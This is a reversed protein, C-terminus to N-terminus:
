ESPFKTQGFKEDAPAVVATASTVTPGRSRYLPRRIGANMSNGPWGTRVPAHAGLPAAGRGEERRGRTRVPQLPPVMRPAADVGDCVRDADGAVDGDGDGDGVAGGRNAPDIAGISPAM